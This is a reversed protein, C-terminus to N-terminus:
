VIEKFEFNIPVIQQMDGDKVESATKLQSVSCIIQTAAFTGQGDATANDKMDSGDVAVLENTLKKNLLLMKDYATMEIDFSGKYYIVRNGRIRDVFGSIASIEERDFSKVDHSFKLNTLGVEVSATPFIMGVETETGNITIEITGNAEIFQGAYIIESIREDDINADISGDITKASVTSIITGSANKFVVTVTLGRLYGLALGDFKKLSKITWTQQGAVIVSSYQKADFPKADDPLGVWGLTYTRVKLTSSAM